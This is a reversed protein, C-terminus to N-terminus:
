RRDGDQDDAEQGAAEDRAVPQNQQQALADHTQAHMEDIM